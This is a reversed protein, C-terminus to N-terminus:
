LMGSSSGKSEKPSNDLVYQFAAPNFLGVGSGILSSSALIVWLPTTTNLTLLILTGVATIGFGLACIRTPGYRDSARGAIPGFVTVGLSISMILLGADIVGIGRVNEFYLPLIVMSGAYPLIIAM